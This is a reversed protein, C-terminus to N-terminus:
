DTVAHWAGNMLKDGNKDGPNKDKIFTYLPKGKYTIQLTGDPRKITNFPLPLVATSAQVPPWNDACPGTCASKRRTDKDFSYVTMGRPDVLVGNQKHLPADDQALVPGALAAASIVAAVLSLSKM